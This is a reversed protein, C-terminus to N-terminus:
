EVNEAQEKIKELESKIRVAAESIEADGGKSALTNTERVMEQTLFDLRRGISGAEDVIGRCSGVHAGLRQLEESIDSKDAFLAIEKALDAKSGDFGRATVLASIREDLKRQYTEVVRPARVLIQAAAAEITDLRALIDKRIGAGERGRGRILDNIAREVLRKVGTWARTPDDAAPSPSAWLPPAALVSQFPVPEKIKLSKRIADIRRYFDRIQRPDPRLAPDPGLKKMTVSINVSGREMKSRVMRDVDGEYRSLPEPLNVKVSLFRHNVSRAEVDIDLRRARGSARGFGTMSNM